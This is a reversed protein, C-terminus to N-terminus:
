KIKSDVKSLVKDLISLAKNTVKLSGIVAIRTAKGAINIATKGASKGTKIVDKVDENNAVKRMTAEISSYEKITTSTTM